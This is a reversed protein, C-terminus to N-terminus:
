PPSVKLVSTAGARESFRLHSDKSIGVKHRNLLGIVNWNRSTEADTASVLGLVFFAGKCRHSHDLTTEKRQLFASDFRLRM